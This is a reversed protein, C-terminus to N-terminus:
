GDNLTDNIIVLAESPQIIEGNVISNIHVIFTEDGEVQPTQSDDM